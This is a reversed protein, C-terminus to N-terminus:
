SVKGRLTGEGSVRLLIGAVGSAQVQLTRATRTEGVGGGVGVNGFRKINKRKSVVPKGKKRKRGSDGGMDQINM